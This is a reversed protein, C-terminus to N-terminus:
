VLEELSCVSVQRENVAHSDFLGGGDAAGGTKVEFAAVLRPTDYLSTPAVFFKPM